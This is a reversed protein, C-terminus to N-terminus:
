DWRTAGEPIFWARVSGDQLTIVVYVNQGYHAGPNVYRWHDRPGNYDRTWFIGTEVLELATGVKRYLDAKTIIGIYEQPFLCVLSGLRESVPKWLFGGPGDMQSGDPVIVQGPIPTPEPQSDPPDPEVPEVPVDPEVWDDIQDQITSCGCLLVLLVFVIFSKM